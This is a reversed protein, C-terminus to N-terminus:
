IHVKTSLRIDDSAAGVLIEIDSDELTWDNVDVNWYRLNSVPIELTVRSTAGADLSVRQFAKLEKLPWEVKTGIRRVYVQAVEDAAMSGTNKLDFSVKIVDKAKYSSKDTKLGAYEFDVYSLGHGFAYMPKVDKTDYWRYGVLLGETYKSEPSPRNARRDRQQGGTIDRRYQETFLDGATPDANPFNGMAYAPSDELKVPFTFPLKGSPAIDGFLVEALATGGEIGNWWGQIIAPSSKM